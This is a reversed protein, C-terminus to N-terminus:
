GSCIVGTLQLTAEHPEAGVDTEAVVVAPKSLAPGHAWGAAAALVSVTLDFSVAAAAVLILRRAM